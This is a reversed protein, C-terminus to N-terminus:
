LNKRRAWEAILLAEAIGDHEKRCGAPTLDITPFLRRCAIISDTKSSTLAMSKKWIAPRVEHYPIQLYIGADEFTGFHRGYTFSSVTGQRPMPQSLETVIILNPFTEKASIIWEAIRVKGEPMRAWRLAVGDSRVIGLGGNKGPDIGLYHKHNGRNKGRPM